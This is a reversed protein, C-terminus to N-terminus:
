RWSSHIGYEDTALIFVVTFHYLDPHPLYPHGKAKDLVHFSPPCDRKGVCRVVVPKIQQAYPREFHASRWALHRM